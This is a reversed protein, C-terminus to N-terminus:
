GKGREGETDFEIELGSEGGPGVIVSKSEDANIGGLDHSIGRVHIVVSKLSTEGLNDIRVQTRGSSCNAGLLVVTLVIISQPMWTRPSLRM